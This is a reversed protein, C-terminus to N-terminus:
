EPIFVEKKNKKHSRYFWSFFIYSSFICFFCIILQLNHLSSSEISSVFHLHIYPGFPWILPISGSLSGLFFSLTRERYNKLFFSFIRSFIFWGILSGAITSFHIGCTFSFGPLLFSLIRLFGSLITDKAQLVSMIGESLVGPLILTSFILGLTLFLFQPSKWALIKKQIVRISALIVGLFFSYLYIRPLASELFFSLVHYLVAISFVAGAAVPLFLHIQLKQLANKFKGQSLLKFFDFSFSGVLDEYASFLFPIAAPSIGPVSAAFGMFMGM